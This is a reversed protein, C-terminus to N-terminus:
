VLVKNYDSRNLTESWVAKTHKIWLQLMIRKILIFASTTFNRVALKTIYNSRGSGILVGHFCAYIHTEPKLTWFDPMRMNSHVNKLGNQPKVYLVYVAVSATSFSNSSQGIPVQIRYHHIPLVKKWNVCTYVTLFNM